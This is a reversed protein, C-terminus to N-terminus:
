LLVLKRLHGVLLDGITAGQVYCMSFYNRISFTSRFADYGNKFKNAPCDEQMVESVVPPDPNPYHVQPFRPTCGAWKTSAIQSLEFSILTNMKNSSTITYNIGTSITTNNSTMNTISDNSIEPFFKDLCEEKGLENEFTVLSNDIFIKNVSYFEKFCKLTDLDTYNEMILNGIKTFNKDVDYSKISNNFITNNRQFEISLYPVSALNGFVNPFNELYNYALNIKFNKHSKSNGFYIIRFTTLKNHNFNLDSISNSDFKIIEITKIQNYNLVVMSLNKFKYFFDTKIFDIQNCYFILKEVSDPLLYDKELKSLNSWVIGYFKLSQIKNAQVLETLDSSEIRISKKTSFFNVDHIKGKEFKFEQLIIVPSM